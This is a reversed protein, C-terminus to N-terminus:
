PWQQRCGYSPVWNQQILWKKGGIVTNANPSGPLRTGFNWACLDGNEGGSATDYWASAYDSTTEVLEHAYVSVVADAGYNGNPTNTKSGCSASGTTSPDGAVFYKLLKGSSHSYATHYGCWQSLWGSFQVDGRFIFAYIGNTDAPLQGSAILNSIITEVQTGSMPGGQTTTSTAINAKLVVSNSMYTKTSGIVQYYQTMMNHWSSGGVNSAFYDVLTKFEQGSASSFDGYYINYLNITGTMVSRGAFYQFRNSTPITPFAGSIPTATVPSASIPSANPAGTTPAITPKFTTPSLTPMFTTPTITSPVFTTPKSTSPRFSPTLTSPSRSSPAASTPSLTSITPSSTTSVSPEASPALSPSASPNSPAASPYLSPMATPSDTPFVSPTISPKQSPSASLYISPVATSATIVGTVGSVQFSGSCTLDNYCGQQLTVTQCAGGVPTFRVGSCRQYYDDNYVMLQNSSDYVRIYQDNSRCFQNSNYGAAPLITLYTGPCVNFNCAVTNIQANNTNSATYPSCTYSTTSSVTFQGTCATNGYCGQQLTYTKDISGTNTYLIKSCYGCYDDSYAVQNSGDYLRIYQDSTGATCGTSACDAIMISVGAPVIFSCTVTNSNAYNTNVASYSACKIIIGSLSSAFRNPGTHMQVLTVNNNVHKTPNSTPNNTPKSPMLGHYQPGRAIISEIEIASMQREIIPAGAENLKNPAKVNIVAFSCLLVISILVTIIKASRVLIPAYGEKSSIEEVQM